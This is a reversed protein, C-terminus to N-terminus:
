LVKISRPSGAIMMHVTGQKRQAMRKADQFTLGSTRVLKNDKDKDRFVVAYNNM